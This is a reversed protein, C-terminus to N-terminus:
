GGQAAGLIRQMAAANYSVGLQDRVDAVYQNFLDAGLARDFNAEGEAADPAGSFYPPVTVGAVQLVIRTDPESGSAVAVTGDPGSFAADVADPSLPAQEPTVPTSRKLETAAEVTLQLEDGIDAVNEGARIRAAIEGAKEDLLRDRQDAKWATVVRERVEALPRDHEPTIGDVEFWVFSARGTEIPPNALGVDSDFAEALIRDRGPIGSVQNGDADNGNIDVAPVNRLPLEFSEAVEAVTGGGALADEIQDHMDLIQEAAREEAELQRVEDRVDEFPRVVEPKVDTVHVLTPGFPGEVVASTAGDELAFAAEAIAEYALGSKSVTGLDVPTAEQAKV